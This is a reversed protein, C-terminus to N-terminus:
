SIRKDQALWEPITLCYTKGDKNKELEGQSKPIWVKELGGHDILWAKETEAHLTVAIDVLENKHTM